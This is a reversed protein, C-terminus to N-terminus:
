VDFVTTGLTLVRDDSVVSGVAVVLRRPPVVLIGVWAVTELSMSAVVLVCDECSTSDVSAEEIIDVDPLVFGMGALLVTLTCVLWSLLPPCDEVCDAVAVDSRGIEMGDFIMSVLGLVIPIVAEVEAAFVSLVLPECSEPDLSVMVVEPDRLLVISEWDVDRGSDLRMLEAGAVVSTDCALLVLVTDIAVEPRLSVSETVMVVLAGILLM